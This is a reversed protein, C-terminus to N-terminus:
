KVFCFFFFLLSVVFNLWGERRMCAHCHLVPVGILRSPLNIFKTLSEYGPYQLRSVPVLFLFTVEPFLFFGFEKCRVGSRKEPLFVIFCHQRICKTPSKKLPVLTQQRVPSQGVRKFGRHLHRLVRPRMVNRTIRAHLHWSSKGGWCSRRYDRCPQHLSLEALWVIDLFFVIEFELNQFHPWRKSYLAGLFGQRSRHGVSALLMWLFYFALPSSRDM